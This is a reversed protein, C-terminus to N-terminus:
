MVLVPPLRDLHETIIFSTIYGQNFTRLIFNGKYFGAESILGKSGLRQLKVDLYPKEIFDGNSSWRYNPAEIVIDVPSRAAIEKAVTVDPPFSLEKQLTVIYKSFYPKITDSFQRKFSIDLSWWLLGTLMVSTALFLM